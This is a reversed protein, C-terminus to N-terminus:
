VIFVTYCKFYFKFCFIFKKTFSNLFNFTETFTFSTFLNKIKYYSHSFQNKMHFLQPFQIKGYPLHLYVFKKKSIHILFDIKTQSILIFFSKKTISKITFANKKEQKCNRIMPSTKPREPASGNQHPAHLPLQGNPKM